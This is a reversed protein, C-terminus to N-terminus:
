TLTKYHTWANRLPDVFYKMVKTSEIYVDKKRMEVTFIKRTIGMSSSTTEVSSEGNNSILLFVVNAKTGAVFNSVPYNRNLHNIGNQILTQDPTNESIFVKTRKYPVIDYINIPFTVTFEVNKWYSSLFQTATSTENLPIPDEFLDAFQNFKAVNTSIDNFVTLYNNDINFFKSSLNCISTDLSLANLNHIGLSDGVCDSLNIRKILNNSMYNKHIEM